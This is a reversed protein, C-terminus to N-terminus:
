KLDIIDYKVTGNDYSRTRLIGVSTHGVNDEYKDYIDSGKLDYEIGNYEVTIRYVAPHTQVTMTNGIRVPTTYANRHYADVITVEVDTYETDIIKACGLLSCAVFFGFVSCLIKKKTM